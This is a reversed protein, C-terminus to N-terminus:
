TAPPEYTFKLAKKQEFNEIALRILEDLLESYALGSAAWMRPYMSVKTFGPITNIENLFLEGTEKDMFFDVRAMGRCELTLFALKAWTQIKEVLSEPLNQAPAVLEVGNEDLYKAEYSYFEHRPICEGVISTRPEDNGLVSCELERANIAKEVLVKRDFEFADKLALSLQEATKVKHVGVSSGANAPKVFFPLAFKKLLEKHHRDKDALYESKRLTHTPVTPIGVTGLLRRSVEKDMGLSSGLVGSGVYPVQALELLGQLTGDEGYTGHLIPLIVDLKPVQGSSPESEAPVLQRSNSFPVLALSEKSRSMKVSMPTDAQALLAQSDPLTWRGEKDIGILTVDYRSKDLAQYVSLASAISVKHEGSRGGFILGVRLKKM